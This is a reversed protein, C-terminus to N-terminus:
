SEKTTHTDGNATNRHVDLLLQTQAHQIHNTQETLTGLNEGSPTRIQRHILYAFVVSLTAPLGAVIAVLVQTWDVSSGAVDM